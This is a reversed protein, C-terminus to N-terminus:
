ATDSKPSIPCFYLILQSALSGYETCTYLFNTVKVQNINQHKILSIDTTFFFRVLTNGEIGQKLRNKKESWVEYACKLKDM